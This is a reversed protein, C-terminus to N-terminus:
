VPLIYEKLLEKISESSGDWKYDVELLTIGHKKCLERKEQDKCQQSRLRDDAGWNSKTIFHQIGQYEVALNLDPIFIDLQGLRNTEYRVLPHWYNQLIEYNPLIERVVKALIQQQKGIVIFKEKEWRFEPMCDMLLGAITKYTHLLQTGHNRVITRNQLRYWDEYRTFGLKDGLWKLYMTKNQKSNWFNSSVRPFLWPLWKYEPFLDIMANFPCFRYYVLFGHGRHRRLIKGDLKYWDDINCYGLQEGLWHIYRLRNNKNHWFQLPVSRMTWEVMEPFCVGILKRISGDYHALLGKGYNAILMKNTLQYWYKIDLKKELWFLYKRQNDMNEWFGAPAKRFLWPLWNYDPYCEELLTIMGGKTFTTAGRGGRGYRLFDDYKIQYWDEMKSFGLKEDLERVFEKKNDLDKWYGNPKNKM